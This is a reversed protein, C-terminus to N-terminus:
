RGPEALALASAATVAWVGGFASLGGGGYSRSPCGWVGFMGFGAVPVPPSGIVFFSFVSVGDFCGGPLVGGAARCFLDQYRVAPDQFPMLPLSGPIMAAPLGGSFFPGGWVRFLKFGSILVPVFVFGTATGASEAIIGCPVGDGGPGGERDRRASEM